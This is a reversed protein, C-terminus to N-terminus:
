ALKAPSASAAPAPHDVSGEAFSNFHEAYRRDFTGADHTSFATYSPSAPAAASKSRCMGFFGYSTALQTARSAALEPSFVSCNTKISQAMQLSLAKEIMAWSESTTIPRSEADKSLWDSPATGVHRLYNFKESKLYQHLDSLVEIDSITHIYTIIKKTDGIVKDADTSPSAAAKSEAAPAAPSSFLITNLAEYESRAISRGKAYVSLWDSTSPSAAAAVVLAKSEAAPAM